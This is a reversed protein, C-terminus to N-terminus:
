KKSERIKQRIAFVMYICTLVAAASAAVLHFEALGWATVWGITGVATHQDM